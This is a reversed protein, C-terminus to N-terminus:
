KGGTTAVRCKRGITGGFAKSDLQSAGMRSREASHHVTMHSWFSPRM